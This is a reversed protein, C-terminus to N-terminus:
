ARTRQEMQSRSDAHLSKYDNMQARLEKHQWSAVADHGSTSTNTANEPQGGAAPWLGLFIFALKPITQCRIRSRMKGRVTRCTQVCSCGPYKGVIPVDGSLEVM